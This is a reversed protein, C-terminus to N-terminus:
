SVLAFASARLAQIEPVGPQALALAGASASRHRPGDGATWAAADFISTLLLDRRYMAEYLM